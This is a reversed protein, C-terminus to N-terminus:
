RLPKKVYYKFLSFVAVVLICELLICVTRQLPRREQWARGGGTFLIVSLHLFMVKGCNSNRVTFIKVTILHSSNGGNVMHKM